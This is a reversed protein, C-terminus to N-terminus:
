SEVFTAAIRVLIGGHLDYHNLRILPRSFVHLSVAPETGDNRLAHVHRADFAVRDGAVRPRDRLSDCVPGVPELVAEILTGALVTFSGASGGYDQLGGSRGPPWSMWWVEIHADRYVRRRQVGALLEPAPEPALVTM